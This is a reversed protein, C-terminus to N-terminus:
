PCTPARTTTTTSTTDLVVDRAGHRCEQAVVDRWPRPAPLGADVAGAARRGARRIWFSVAVPISPRGKRGDKVAVHVPLVDHCEARWRINAAPIIGGVGLEEVGTICLRGRLGREELRLLLLLLLLGDLRWSKNICIAAGDLPIPGRRGADDWAECWHQCRRLLCLCALEEVGVASWVKM